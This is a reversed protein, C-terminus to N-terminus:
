FLTRINFHFAVDPATDVIIDESVAMDLSTRESLGFTGGILLQGANASLHKVSSEEYLPTHGDMQVKIALRSIPKWGVGVTGFGVWNRQQEPLIDGETMAMIGAAAFLAGSGLPLKFDDSGTLWLSLDTSGSGFLSDSDGTPLKIGARLAVARPYPAADNYLQLGATLVVDGLGGRSSDIKLQDMGNRRYRFLLRNVPAQDRKGPSFGFRDHYDIIANDLFGGGHYVYPIEIGVEVNRSLGYRGALTLRTTEGDIVLHEGIYEDDLYSSSHDLTVQAEKRGQPLVMASGASPLGFIRVFPSQNQSNFPTVDFAHLVSSSFVTAILVALGLIFTNLQRHHVASTERVDRVM